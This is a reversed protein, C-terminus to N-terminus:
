LLIIHRKKKRRCIRCRLSSNSSCRSSSTPHQFDIGLLIVVYFGDACLEWCSAIFSTTSFLANSGRVKVIYVAALLGAELIICSWSKLCFFVM